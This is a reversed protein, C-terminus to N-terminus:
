EVNKYTKKIKEANKRKKVNKRKKGSREIARDVSCADLCCLTFTM